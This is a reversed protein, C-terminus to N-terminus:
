GVRGVLHPRPAPGPGGAAPRPRRAPLIARHRGTLAFILIPVVFYIAGPVCVLSFGQAVLTHSNAIVGVYLIPAVSDSHRLAYAYLKGILWALAFWFLPSFWAFELFAEGVGSYTSGPFLTVGTYDYIEPFTIPNLWGQGLNPKDPWWQRPIWHSAISLYGTGWQFRDLELCTAIACCNYLFENDSEEYAKGVLVNAATVQQLRRESWSAGEASYDRLTLFLLMILGALVLGSVIVARNVLHPRAIYYGYILVVIFTFTPGRRVYYVWYSMLLVGLVTLLLIVSGQRYEPYRAALNVCIAFGPFAIHFLLYWYASVSFGYGSYFFSYQGAIGVLIAVVGGYWLSEHGRMPVIRRPARVAGVGKYWGLLIGILSILAVFQGLALAFPTIRHSMTTAVVGSQLVYFYGFSLCIVPVFGLLAEPTRLSHVFQYACLAATALWCAWFIINVDAPAM